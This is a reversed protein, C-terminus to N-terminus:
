ILLSFKTLSLAAARFSMGYVLLSGVGHSGRELSRPTDPELVTWLNLDVFVDVRFLHFAHVVSFRM